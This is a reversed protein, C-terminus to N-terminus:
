SGVVCLIFFIYVYMYEIDEGAAEGTERPRRQGEGPRQQDEETGEATGEDGRCCSLCLCVNCLQAQLYYLTLSRISYRGKPDKKSFM